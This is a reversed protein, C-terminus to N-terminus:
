GWVARLYLAAIVALFVFRVFNRKAVIKDMFKQELLEAYAQPAAIADFPAVVVGESFRFAKAIRRM